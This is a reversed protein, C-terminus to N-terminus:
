AYHTSVLNIQIGLPLMGFRQSGDTQRWVQLKERQANGQEKRRRALLHAEARTFVEGQQDAESNLRSSLQGAVIQHVQQPGISRCRPRAVRKGLCQSHQLLLDPAIMKDHLSRGDPEDGAGYLHVRGPEVGKLGLYTALEEVAELYRPRYLEFM